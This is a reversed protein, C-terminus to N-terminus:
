PRTRMEERIKKVWQIEKQIYNKIYSDREMDFQKALKAILKDCVNMGIEKNMLIM